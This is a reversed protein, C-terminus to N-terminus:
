VQLTYINGNVAAPHIKLSEPGQIIIGDLQPTNPQLKTLQKRHRFLASIEMYLM